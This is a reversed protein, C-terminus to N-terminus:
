DDDEFVERDSSELNIDGSYYAYDLWEEYEKIAKEKNEAEINKTIKYYGNEVFYYNTM